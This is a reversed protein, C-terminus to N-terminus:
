PAFGTGPTNHRQSDVTTTASRVPSECHSGYDVLGEIGTTHRRIDGNGAPGGSSVIGNGCVHTAM